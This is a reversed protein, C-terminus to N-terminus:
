QQDIPLRQLDARSGGGRKSMRNLTPRMPFKNNQAMTRIADNLKERYETFYGDKFDLEGDNRAKMKMRFTLYSQLMDFRQFDITDGDSDVSTAVKAYDAYINKNDENADTMPTWELQSNRVTFWMPIGETEGQWVNTDVPIQVTISGTGSAPVGTLVGATASRTIGTYTISYKTGSIYVSVSGTDEFDYSNDIELTTDSIEAQTTVQTTNINNIQAEFEGPSLYFLKSNDGIRLSIISKNTERDYADTPMALTNIGRSTQGLVANYSYHEAWRKLKGQILRIGGNIWEYCDEITVVDSLELSLNRLTRDVMYGVTNSGWGGVAMEDTYGSFASTISNKFRTYYFGTSGATDTYETTESDVWLTVTSLVSKSGGSTTATSFEVQDYLAVYVPDGASHARVTNSALTVTTGSPASSAHTKIIESNEDGLEGIVLVQNIALGSINKVTLTGSASAVDTSLYSVPEGPIVTSNQIKVIAM